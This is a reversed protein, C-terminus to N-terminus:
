KRGVVKTMTDCNNERTAHSKQNHSDDDHMSIFKIRVWERKVSKKESVFRSNRRRELFKQVLIPDTHLRDVILVVQEEKEEKSKGKEEKRERTPRTTRKAAAPAISVARVAAFEFATSGHVMSARCCRFLMMSKNRGRRTWERRTTTAQLKRKRNTRGRWWWKGKNNRPSTM